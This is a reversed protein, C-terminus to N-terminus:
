LYIHVCAAIGLATALTTLAREVPHANILTWGTATIAAACGTIALPIYYGM